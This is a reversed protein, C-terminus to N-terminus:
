HQGFIIPLLMKATIFKGDHKAPIWKPMKQIIEIAHKDYSKGLGKVIEIDVITGDKEVTFEVYVIGEVGEYNKLNLNKNLFSKLSDQGGPFSPPPFDIFIVDNLSDKQQANTITHQLCLLITLILFRMMLKLGYQKM